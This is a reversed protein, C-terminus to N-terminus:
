LPHPLADFTGQRAAMQAMLDALTPTSDKWRWVGVQGSKGSHLADVLGEEKFKLLQCRVTNGRFANREAKTAFSLGFHDIARQVITLTDLSGPAADQLMKLLLAKLSGRTRYEVAFARVTGAADPAVRNQYATAISSDLAALRKKRDALVLPLLATRSQLLEVQQAFHAQLEQARELERRLSAEREKSREIDGALTAREVLLWKLLPPTQERV